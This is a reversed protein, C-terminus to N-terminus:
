SITSYSFINSGDLNEVLSTLKEQMEFLGESILENITPDYKMKNLEEKKKDLKKKIIEKIDVLNKQMFNYKMSNYQKLFYEIRSKEPELTTSIDLEERTNKMEEIM